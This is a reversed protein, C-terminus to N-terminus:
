SRSHIPAIASAVVHEGAPINEVAPDVSVIESDTMIRELLNWAPPEANDSVARPPLATCGCLAVAAAFVPLGLCRHYKM